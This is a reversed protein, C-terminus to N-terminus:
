ADDLARLVAAAARRLEGPRGLYLPSAGDCLLDRALALGEPRVPRPHRLREAIDLLQPRAEGYAERNVPIAATLGSRGRNAREIARELGEATRLRRRSARAFPAVRFPLALVRPLRYLPRSAPSATAHAMM